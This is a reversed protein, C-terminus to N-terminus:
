FITIVDGAYGTIDKNLNKVNSGNIDCTFLSSTVNAGIAVFYITNGDTTYRNKSIYSYPAPLNPTIITEIGNKDITAFQSSGQASSKLILVKGQSMIGSGGSNGANADKSCSIQFMLISASFLFLTASTILLKKM